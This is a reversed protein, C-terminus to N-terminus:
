SEDGARIQRRFGPKSGIIGIPACVFWVITEDSVIRFILRCIACTVALGAYLRWSILLEGFELIDPLAM